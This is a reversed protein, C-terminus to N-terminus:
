SLGWLSITGVGCLSLFGHGQCPSCASGELMKGQYIKSGTRLDDGKSALPMDVESGVSFELWTKEM